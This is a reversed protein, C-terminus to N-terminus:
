PIYSHKIIHNLHVAHQDPRLVPTGRNLFNKMKETPKHIEYIQPAFSSFLPLLELLFSGIHM